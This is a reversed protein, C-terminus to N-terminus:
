RDVEEVPQGEYYDKYEPYREFPWMERLECAPCHIEPYGVAEWNWCVIDRGCEPCDLEHYRVAEYSPDEPTDEGHVVESITLYVTM